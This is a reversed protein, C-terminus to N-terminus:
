AGGNGDTCAYGRGKKRMGYPSLFGDSLADRNKKEHNKIRREEVIRLHFIKVIFLRKSNKECLM